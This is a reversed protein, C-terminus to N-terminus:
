WMGMGFIQATWEVKNERVSKSEERRMWRM